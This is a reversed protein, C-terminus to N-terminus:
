ATKRVMGSLRRQAAAFLVDLATRKSAYSQHRLLDLATQTQTDDARVLEKITM